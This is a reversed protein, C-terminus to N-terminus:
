KHGIPTGQRIITEFRGGGTSTNFHARDERDWFFNTLTLGAFMFLFVSNITRKKYDSMGERSDHLSAVRRIKNTSLPLDAIKAWVLDEDLDDRNSSSLANLSNATRTLVYIHSVCQQQIEPALKETSERLQNACQLYHQALLHACNVFLPLDDSPIAVEAKLADHIVDCFDEIVFSTFSLQEVVSEVVKAKTAASYSGMQYKTALTLLNTISHM